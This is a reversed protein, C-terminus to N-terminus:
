PLQKLSCILIIKLCCISRHLHTSQLLLFNKSPEEWTWIIHWHKRRGVLCRNHREMKSNEVGTHCRCPPPAWYINSSYFFPNPLFMIFAIPLFAFKLTMSGSNERLSKNRRILGQGRDKFILGWFSFVSQFWLGMWLKPHDSSKRKLLAPLLTTQSNQTAPHSFPSQPLPPTYCFSLSPM